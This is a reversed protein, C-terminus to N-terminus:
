HIEDRYFECTMNTIYWDQNEGVNQVVPSRCTISSFSTDRFIDGATDALVRGTNTGIGIKTHINVSILGTARHLPNTTGIDVRASGVDTVFLEAFSTGPTPRYGVNQFKKDCATFNTDFRSEIAIQAAAFSM